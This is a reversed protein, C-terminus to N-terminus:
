YMGETSQNVLVTLCPKIARNLKCRYHQLKTTSFSMARDSIQQKLTSLKENSAGYVEGLLRLIDSLFPKVKSGQPTNAAVWYVLQPGDEIAIAAVTDGSPSYDCIYALEDLFRKRLTKSGSDIFEESSAEDSKVHSGQSKGYAALLVLPEYFRSWLKANVQPPCADSTSSDQVPEPRPTLPRTESPLTHRRKQLEANTVASNPSSPSPLSPSQKSKTRRKGM